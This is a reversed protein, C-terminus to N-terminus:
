AWAANLAEEVYLATEDPAGPALRFVRVTSLMRALEFVRRTREANVMSSVVPQLEAVEDRGPAVVSMRPRAEFPALFVVAGLPLSRAPSVPLLEEVALRLPGDRDPDRGSGALAAGVAAARPGPKLGVPRRFPIV